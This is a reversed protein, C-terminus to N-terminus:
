QVIGYYPSSFCTYMCRIVAGELVCQAKNVTVTVTVNKNVRCTLSTKM